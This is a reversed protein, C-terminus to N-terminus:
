FRSLLGPIEQRSSVWSSARHTTSVTREGAHAVIKDGIIQALSRYTTLKGGYLTFLLGQPLHDEAIVHERSIVSLNKSASAPLWRLGAFSTQIDNERLPKRLYPACVKLLYQIEHDLVPPHDFDGNYNGETTGLLTHGLWPLLFCIRGDDAQMLVGAKLGLDAFVLHIGKNALGQYHPRLGSNTLLQNSWPGLCNVVYRANIQKNAGGADVVSVQWSGDAAPALASVQVGESISAGLAAASAAVRAVLALDDTQADWFSYAAYLNESVLPAAQQQLYHSSVRRHNAIKAKGALRDYLSLGIKIKWKNWINKHLLPFLIELPHVLDSALDLLLRREHLAENVLSFDHLRELYRLGGHILKTSKSSTGHALKNKELLHLGQWGRSALDHLVGVGHIGGGLVLVRVQEPLKHQYM